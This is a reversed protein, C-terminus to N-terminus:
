EGGRHSRSTAQALDTSDPLKVQTRITISRRRVAAAHADHWAAEAWDLIANIARTFLHGWISMRTEGPPNHMRPM